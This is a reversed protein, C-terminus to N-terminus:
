SQEKKKPPPPPLKNVPPIYSPTYGEDPKKNKVAHPSQPSQATMIM